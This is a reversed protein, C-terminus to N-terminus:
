HKVVYPGRVDNLGDRIGKIIMSVKEKVQEEYLVVYMCEKLIAWIDRIVFKPECKWYQRWIILGNRTIYYRRTAPHNTVTVRTFIFLRREMSGLSHMLGAQTAELLRYGHSRLRLCFEVDVYDIFLSDDFGGTDSAAKVNVLNGSTMAAPIIRWGVGSAEVGPIRVIFGSKRDVHCPTVVAVRDPHPYSKLADFMEDIMRPTAQSDQDLTALWEYDHDRAFQLGVNLARAIGLNNGLHVIVAGFRRAAAQVPELSQESSGNDVILLQAVQPALAALNEACNPKPFYTVVVACVKPRAITAAGMCGDVKLSSAWHQGREQRETNVAV